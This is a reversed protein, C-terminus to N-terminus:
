VLPLLSPVLSVGNELDIESSDIGAPIPEVISPNNEGSGLKIMSLNKAGGSGSNLNKLSEYDSKKLPHSMEFKEFLYLLTTYIERPYATWIMPLNKHLLIGNKAWSHKTTYLTAIADILWQHNLIILDKLRPDKGFYVISGVSHLFEAADLVEQDTKLGCSRGFQLLTIRDIMPAKIERGFTQLVRELHVYGSPYVKGMSDLNCVLSEVQKRLEDIGIQKVSSVLFCELHKLGHSYETQLREMLKNAREKLQEPEPSEDFRTGVILVSAKPVRAKISQLWFEVREEFREATVKFSLLFVASSLFLQHSSYYVEQGAFDYVNVDVMPKGKKFPFQYTGIDIGDTSLTNGDKQQPEVNHSLCGWKKCISRVLTTKGVNEDGIVMIKARYLAKEGEFRERLLTQLAEKGKAAASALSSELSDVEVLFDTLELYGLTEPLNKIKNGLLNLFRLSKMTGVIVSVEEIKNNALNLKRIPCKRLCIPVKELADNQCSVEELSTCGELGDTLTRLNTNNNCTLIQLKVCGRITAPLETLKNSSVDLNILNVCNGISSPLLTVHNNALNLFKLNKLNGISSPVFTIYNSSLDVHSLNPSNQFLSNPITRLHNGQLWLKTLNVFHFTSTPFENLECSQMSLITLQPFRFNNPLYPIINNDLFLFKLKQCNGISSPITKILNHKLSLLELDKLHGILPPLSHIKNHDFSLEKLQTYTFLSEPLCMIANHIASLQKIQPPLVIKDLSYLNKRDMQLKNTDKSEKVFSEIEKSLQNAFINWRLLYSAWIPYSFFDSSSLFSDRTPKYLINKYDKTNSLINNFLCGLTIEGKLQREMRRNDFFFNKFRNCHLSDLIYTLLQENFEFEAYYNQHIVWVCYIFTFFMVSQTDKSFAYGHFLWEKDILTCFGKITRYYPDSLLQILSALVCDSEYGTGGSQIIVSEGSKLLNSCAFSNKIVGTIYRNWSLCADVFNDLAKVRSVNTNVLCADRLNAFITQLYSDSHDLYNVSCYEYILDYHHISELNSDNNKHQSSLDFSVQQAKGMDYVVIKKNQYGNLPLKEDSNATLYISELYEMVTHVSFEPNNTQLRGSRYLSSREKASSGWNGWTYIPFRGNQYSKSLKRFLSFDFSNSIITPVILKEPYDQSVGFTQNMDSIILLGNQENFGQRKLEKEITFDHLQSMPPNSKALGGETLYGVSNKHTLSNIRAVLEDIKPNTKLAIAKIDKCYFATIHETNAQLVTLSKTAYISHLPIEVTGFIGLQTGDSFVIRHSSIHIDIKSIVFGVTSDSNMFMIDAGGLSDVREEGPLLALQSQSGTPPGNPPLPPPSSSSAPSSLSTLSPGPKFQSSPPAKDSGPPPSDVTYRRLGGSSASKIEIVPREASDFTRRPQLSATTSPPSSAYKDPVINLVTNEFVKGRGSNSHSLSPTSPSQTALDKRSVTNHNPPSLATPAGNNSVTNSVPAVVVNPVPTTPSPTTPTTPTTPTGTSAPLELNEPVSFKAILGQIRSPKSELDSM